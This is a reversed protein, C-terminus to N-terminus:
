KDELKLKNINKIVVSAEKYMQIETNTVSRFDKIMHIIFVIVAICATLLLVIILLM